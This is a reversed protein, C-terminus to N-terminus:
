FCNCLKIEPIHPMRFNNMDQIFSKFNTQKSYTLNIYRLM